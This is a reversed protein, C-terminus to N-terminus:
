DLLHRVKSKVAETIRNSYIFHMYLYNYAKCYYDACENVYNLDLNFNRRIAAGRSDAAKDYGWCIWNIATLYNAIFEADTSHKLINETYQQKLPKDYEHMNLAAIIRDVNDIEFQKAFHRIMTSEYMGYNMADFVDTPTRLTLNDFQKM